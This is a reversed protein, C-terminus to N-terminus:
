IWFACSVVQKWLLKLEAKTKSILNTLRSM